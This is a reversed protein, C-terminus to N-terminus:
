IDRERYRLTDNVTLSSDYKRDRNMYSLTDDGSVHKETGNVLM